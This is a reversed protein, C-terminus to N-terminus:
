ASVSTDSKAWPDPPLPTRTDESTETFWEDALLEEVTPRDRPDLKLIERVFANDARPIENTSWRMLPKRPPAQNNFYHILPLADVNVIEAM